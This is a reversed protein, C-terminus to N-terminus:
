VVNFGASGTKNDTVNSKITGGWTITYNGKEFKNSDFIVFRSKGGNPDTVEGQKNIKFQINKTYSATPNTGKYLYFTINYTFTTFAGRICSNGKLSIEIGTLDINRNPADIVDSSIVVDYRCKSNSGEYNVVGLTMRANGVASVPQILFVCSIAILLVVIGLVLFLKNGRLKQKMKSGGNKQYSLHVM